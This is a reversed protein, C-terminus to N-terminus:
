LAGPATRSRPSTTPTEVQDLNTFAGGAFLTGDSAVALDNVQGTFDGDNDVTSTPAGTNLDCAILYDAAPIGNANQFTGGVYLNSGIVQLTRVDGEFAPTGTLNSFPEWSVGDFVALYDAAPEEGADTFNGGAYVKGNHVAIAFVSGNKAIPKSGIASWSNGKWKAIRDAAAIGGANTFGGGVYMASATAYMESVHDNLAPGNAGNTGLHNWTGKGTLANAPAGLALCAALFLALALLQGKSSRNGPSRGAGGQSGIRPLNM